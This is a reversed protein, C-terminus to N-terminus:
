GQTKDGTKEKIEQVLKELTLSSLQKKAANEASVFTEELRTMSIKAVTKQKFVRDLLGSPAFLSGKGEISQVVDLLTIERPKKALTFGGGVGHTSAIIGGAVLKRTIKKTYSPSLGLHDSLRKSTLQSSNHNSAILGMICCAQEVAQSYKM